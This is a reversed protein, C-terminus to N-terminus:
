GVITKLLTFGRPAKNSNRRHYASVYLTALGRGDPHSIAYIDVPQSSTSSFTSGMRQYAVKAGDPARLRALYSISGMPTKTTIPNGVDLGFEGEASPIEDADCGDECLLSLAEFVAKQQQFVPNAQLEDWVSRPQKQKRKFLGM